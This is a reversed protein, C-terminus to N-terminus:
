NYSIGHILVKIELGIQLLEGRLTRSYSAVGTPDHCSNAMNPRNFVAVVFPIPRFSVEKPTLFSCQLVSEHPLSISWLGVHLYEQLKLM